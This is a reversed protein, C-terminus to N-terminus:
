VLRSAHYKSSSLCLITAKLHANKKKVIMNDKWIYLFGDDGATIMLEDFLFILALFTVELPFIEEGNENMIAKQKEKDKRHEREQLIHLIGAKKMMESPNEIPLEEFNIIGGKHKWLSLHQFGLTFFQDNSKPLFEIDKIKFPISYSLSCSGLIEGTENDILIVIQNYMQTLAVCAVRKSDYSYKLNLIVCINELTWSHIFTKTTLEWTILKAKKQITGACVYKRCPSLTFTSIEPSITHPDGSDVELFKEKFFFKKTKENIEYGEPPINVMVLLSAANFILHNDSTYFANNRRNFAKRGIIKDLKLSLEPEISMDTNQQLEIIENRSHLMENIIKNYEQKKEIERLFMDEMETDYERHDLEWSVNGKKIAWEFICHDSLSSTFLKTEDHMVQISDVASSHAAYSKALCLNEPKLTEITLDTGNMQLCTTKVINIDGKATGLFMSKGFFQMATVQLNDYSDKTEKGKESIFKATRRYRGNIHRPFNVKDFGYDRIMDRNEQKSNTGLNWIQYIKAKDDEDINFNADIMTYNLFLYQENESFNM